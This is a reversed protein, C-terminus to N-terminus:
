RSRQKVVCLYCHDTTPDDNADYTHAEPRGRRMKGCSDCYFAVTTHRGRHDPDLLCKGNRMDALCTTDPHALEVREDTESVTVWGERRRQLLAITQSKHIGIM